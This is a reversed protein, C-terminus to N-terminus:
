FNPPQAVDSLQSSKACSHRQLKHKQVQRGQSSSIGPACVRLRGPNGEAPSAGHISKSEGAIHGVIDMYKGPPRRANAQVGEGTAVQM